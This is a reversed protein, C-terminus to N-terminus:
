QASTVNVHKCLGTSYCTNHVEKKVKFIGVVDVMYCLLLGSCLLYCLLAAWMRKKKKQPHNSRCRKHDLKEVLSLWPKYFMISCSVTLHVKRKQRRKLFSSTNPIQCARIAAWAGLTIVDCFTCLRDIVM